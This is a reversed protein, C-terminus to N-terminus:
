IYLLVQPKLQVAITSPNSRKKAAFGGSFKMKLGEDSKYKVECSTTAPEESSNGGDSRNDFTLSSSLKNNNNSQSFTAKSTKSQTETVEGVTKNPSISGSSNTSQDTPTIASKQYLQAYQGLIMFNQSYELSQSISISSFPSYPPPKTPPPPPIHGLPPAVLRGSTLQPASLNSYGLFYFQCEDICHEKGGACVHLSVPIRWKTTHANAVCVCVCVCM